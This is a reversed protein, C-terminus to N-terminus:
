STNKECRIAALEVKAKFDASHNSRPRRTMKESGTELSM